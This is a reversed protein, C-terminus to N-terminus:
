MALLRQRIIPLNHSAESHRQLLNLPIKVKSIQWHLATDAGPVTNLVGATLYISIYMIDIFFGAIPFSFTVLLIGIIIKPLQNEISMVTRPDVKVRLMIAIGILVFIVVLILYVINRFATWLPLLPSLGQFGIGTQQAYAPKVIGFNGAMHRFYDGTHLPPTYLVAILSTMQGIAGGNYDVYGIKKTQPDIGLCKTGREIIDIGTMLCSLASTTEIMVTQTWMHTNQPVDPNVNAPFSTQAYTSFPLIALFLVLLFIGISCKKLLVTIM